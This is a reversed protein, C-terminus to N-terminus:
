EIASVLVVPQWPDLAGIGRQHVSEGGVGFAFHWGLRLRCQYQEGIDRRLTSLRHTPAVEDTIEVLERRKHSLPKLHSAELNIAAHWGAVLAGTGTSRLFRRRSFTTM